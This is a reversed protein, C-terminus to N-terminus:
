RRGRAGGPDPGPGGHGPMKSSQPVVNPLNAGTIPYTHHPGIVWQLAPSGLDHTVLIRDLSLAHAAILWDLASLNIGRKEMTARAQAYREAVVREWPLVEVRLPFAHVLAHLKTAEPRRALGHLLEAATISSIALTEM